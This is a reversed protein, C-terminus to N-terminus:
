GQQQAWASQPSVEVLEGGCTSCCTHMGSELYILTTLFLYGPLFLLLTHSDTAPKLAHHHFSFHGQIVCVLICHNQRGKNDPTNSVRLLARM